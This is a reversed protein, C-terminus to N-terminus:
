LGFSYVVAIRLISLRNELEYPCARRPGGDGCRNGGSRNVYHTSQGFDMHSVDLRLGWNDATPSELGVGIVWGIETSSSRFSDDPDIRQPMGGGFDIDTVSNSIRAAAAGGTAFITAPGVAHEIGTRVTAVWRVKSVVTEDLGEPDLQNSKASIDGFMGDLEIRIGAGGIDFKRGVLVGGVIDSARYEVTSGPNGWNAFGDIDVIRNDARSSGTFVSVYTGAWDFPDANASSVTALVLVSVASTIKKM